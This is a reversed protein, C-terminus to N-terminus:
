SWSVTAALLYGAGYVTKIIKPHQPNEELRRRLRSVRLDISRDLASTDRGALLQDRSLIHNPHELLTILLQAESVGLMDERGDPAVLRHTGVEFQWGAFEAVRDAASAADPRPRQYRRLVSRVRAILERPEFPKLVYDDAGLELGMVRDSTDTRGTVILLGFGHRARIQQLVQMGDMDPLGLDLICLAPTEARLRRLFDTGTRFVEARYNFRQLTGEILRAVAPDDEVVHILEDEKVSKM